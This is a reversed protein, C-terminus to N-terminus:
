QHVTSIDNSIYTISHHAPNCITSQLKQTIRESTTLHLAKNLIFMEEITQTIFESIQDAILLVIVEILKM